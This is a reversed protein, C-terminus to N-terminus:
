PKSRRRSCRRSVAALVATTRPMPSANVCGMRRTATVAPCFRWSPVVSHANIPPISPGTQIYGSVAGDFARLEGVSSKLFCWGANANFTFARCREDALCAAECDDLDVDQLTDYDHGFYDAGRVVILQRQPAEDALRPTPEIAPPQASQAQAADHPWLMALMSASLMWLTLGIVRMLSVDGLRQM